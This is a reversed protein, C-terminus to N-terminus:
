EDTERRPLRLETDDGAAKPTRRRVGTLAEFDVPDYPVENGSPMESNEWVLLDFHPSVEGAALLRYRETGDREELVAVGRLNDALYLDFRRVEGHLTRVRFRWHGPAPAEFSEILSPWPGDQMQEVFLSDTIRIPYVTRGDLYCTGAVSALRQWAEPCGQRDHRRMQGTYKDRLAATLTEFDRRNPEVDLATATRIRAYNASRRDKDVFVRCRYRFGDASDCRSYDCFFLTDDRLFPAAPATTSRSNASTAATEAGRPSTGAPADSGTAFGTEAARIRLPTRAHLSSRARLTAGCAFVLLPVFRSLLLNPRLM